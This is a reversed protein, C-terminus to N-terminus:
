SGLPSFRFNETVSRVQAAFSQALKDFVTQLPPLTDLLDDAALLYGGTGSYLSPWTLPHERSLAAALKFHSMAGNLHREAGTVRYTESMLLSIALPSIGLGTAGLGGARHSGATGPASGSREAEPGADALRDAIEVAATLERTHVSNRELDTPM